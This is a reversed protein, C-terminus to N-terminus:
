GQLVNENKRNDIQIKEGSIGMMETEDSERLQCPNAPHGKGETAVWLAQLRHLIEPWSVGASDANEPTGQTGTIYIFTQSAIVQDYGPKGLRQFLM